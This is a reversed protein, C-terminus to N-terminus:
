GCCRGNINVRRGCDSCFDEPDPSEAHGHHAMVRKLDALYGDEDLPLPREERAAIRARPPTKQREQQLVGDMWKLMPPICDPCSVRDADTPDPRGRRALREQASSPLDCLCSHSWWTARVFYHIIGREDEFLHHPCPSMGYPRDNASYCDSM